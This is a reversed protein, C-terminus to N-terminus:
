SEQGIEKDEDTQDSILLYFAKPALFNFNMLRYIHLSGNRHFSGVATQM